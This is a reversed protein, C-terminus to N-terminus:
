FMNKLGRSFDDAQVTTGERIKQIRKLEDDEDQLNAMEVSSEEIQAFFNNIQIGLIEM